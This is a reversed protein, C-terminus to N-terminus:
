TLATAQLATLNALWTSVGPVAVNATTTTLFAAGLVTGGHFSAALGGVNVPVLDPGTYHLGNQFVHDTGMFTMPGQSLFSMGDSNMIIGNSHADVMSIGEDSIVIRHGNKNILSMEGNEGNMYFLGGSADQCIFSGTKDFSWFATKPESETGGSWTMQIQEDGKTDDFMLVHGSPTKFGRRKGYNKDTFETGVLNAEEAEEGTFVTSGTWRAHISTISSQHQFLDQDTGLTVLITVQQGVDPVAFWGWLLAPEIWGPLEQQEDGLLAACAVKIRGRKEPDENKSVVALFMREDPSSHM